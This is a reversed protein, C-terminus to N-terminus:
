PLQTEAGDSRHQFRAQLLGLRFRHGGEMSETEQRTDSSSVRRASRNRSRRRFCACNRPGCTVSPLKSQVLNALLSELLRSTVALYSVPKNTEEGGMGCREFDELTRGLLNPDRLLTM